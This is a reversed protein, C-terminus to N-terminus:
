DQAKIKLDRIIKGFYEYDGRVVDAFPAPALYAAKSGTAEIRKVFVPDRFLAELTRAYTDIIESPLRGPGFLGGWGSTRLSSLGAEALTPLDPLEPLRQEGAAALGILRGSQIHPVVVTDMLIEIDGALLGTLSLGAGRYPVHVIDIGAADRLAETLIHVTSGQGSSGYNLKGPNAKAYAILEPLTRAPVKPSIALARLSEGVRAIAVLDHLPDFDLKRLHPINAFVATASVLVTYGDPAARAVTAAAISGAAGGQNEVVVPTGLRSSLGEALVRALGDSTGGPPFSVIMRIPREPFAAQAPRTCVMSAGLTAVLAIAFVVQTSRM